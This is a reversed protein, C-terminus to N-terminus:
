GIIGSALGKHCRTNPQWATNASPGAPGLIVTSRRYRNWKVKSCDCDPLGWTTDHAHVAWGEWLSQHPVWISSFALERRAAPEGWLNAARAAGMSQDRGGWSWTAEAGGLNWPQSVEGPLNSSSRKPPEGWWSGRGVQQGSGAQVRNRAIKCGHLDSPQNIAHPSTQYWNSWWLRMGTTRVEHIIRGNIELAALWLEENLITGKRM